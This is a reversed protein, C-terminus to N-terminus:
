SQSENRERWAKKAEFVFGSGYMMGKGDAYQELWKWPVVDAPKAEELVTKAMGAQAVFNVYDLMPMEKIHENQWDIAKQYEEILPEVDVFKAM